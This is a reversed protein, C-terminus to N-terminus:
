KKQIGIRDPISARQWQSSVCYPPSLLIQVTHPEGGITRGRGETRDITHPDRISDGLRRNLTRGGPEAWLPGRSSEVGMGALGRFQRLLGLRLVEDGRRRNQYCRRRAEESRRTGM